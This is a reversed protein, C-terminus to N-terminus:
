LEKSERLPWQAQIFRNICNGDSQLWHWSKVWVVPHFIEGVDVPKAGTQNRPSALFCAIFVRVVARRCSLLAKIRRALCHELKRVEGHFFVKKGVIHLLVM